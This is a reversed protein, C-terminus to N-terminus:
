SVRQVIKGWPQKKNERRPCFYSHSVPSYATIFICWFILIPVGSIPVNEGIVPIQLQLKPNVILFYPSENSIWFLVVELQARPSSFAIHIYWKLNYLVFWIEFSICGKARITIGRWMDIVM